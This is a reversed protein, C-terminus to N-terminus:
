WPTSKNPTFNYFKCEADKVSRNNPCIEIGHGLMNEILEFDGSNVTPHTVNFWPSWMDKCEAGTVVETFLYSQYCGM